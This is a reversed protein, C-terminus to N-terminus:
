AADIAGRYTKSGVVVTVDITTPTKPAPKPKRHRRRRTETHAVLPFADDAVNLDVGMGYRTVQGHFQWARRGAWEEGLGIPAVTTPWKAANAGIRWSACWVTHPHEGKHKRLGVCTTPVGYPFVYAADGVSEVFADFYDATAAPHANWVSAEIDLAVPLVGPQSLGASQGDKIAALAEVCQEADRRPHPRVIRDAPFPAVYIPLLHGIGALVTSLEAATWSHTAYPSQLYGAWAAVGDRAAKTLTDRSPVSASDCFRRM